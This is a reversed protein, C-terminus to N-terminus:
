SGRLIDIQEQYKEALAAVDNGYFQLSKNNVNGCGALYCMAAKFEATRTQLGAGNDTLYVAAAMFADEPNWPNPPFNGTLKGVRDKSQTYTWTGSTGTCKGTVSNIYGAYCAWTSPIFQAPGMAGGWGYWQKKSVPVAGAELGLSATISRFVPVDRTPHMDLTWTGKGVNQGLNSEETIIALLFAPRIGTKRSAENAYDLASGFSIAASGTLNFLESRIQAATKQNAAIVKQYNEEKGQTDALLKEVERQRAKIQNQQLIQADRLKVEEQQERELEEKAAQTATADVQIQAFSEQMAREIMSFQALDAFFESFTSASLAAVVPSTDSLQDAQRLIGALSAQEATLKANLGYLTNAKQQISANIQQIVLNRRTIDNQAQKIQAKLLSIDRNLSAKEGELADVQKQLEANQADLADLQRRLEVKRADVDSSGQAWAIGAVASIFLAPLILASVARGAQAFMHAM